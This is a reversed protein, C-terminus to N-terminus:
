KALKSRVLTLATEVSTVLEIPNVAGYRKQEKFATVGMEVMQGTGVFVTTVDPDDIGGEGRDAAMGLAITSFDIKATTFDIIRFVMRSGQAKKFRAVEERAQPAAEPSLAGDYTILIIPEGDFHKYTVTM